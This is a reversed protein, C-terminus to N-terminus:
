RFCQFAAFSNLLNLVLYHLHLAIFLRFSLKLIMFVVFVVINSIVISTVSYTSFDLTELMPKKDSLSLFYTFFRTFKHLLALWTVSFLVLMHSFCYCINIICLFVCFYDNGINLTSSYVLRLRSTFLHSTSSCLCHISFDCSKDACAPCVCFSHFSRSYSFRENLGTVFSPELKLFSVNRTDKVAIFVVLFPHYWYWWFHTTDIGGSIPPVLVVLFPRYWARRARDLSELGRDSIKGYHGRCVIKQEEM